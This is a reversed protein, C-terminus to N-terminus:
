RFFSSAWVAMVLFLLFIFFWSSLKFFKKAIKEKKTIALVTLYFFRGGDFIGVPLMNILAVSISILVIWWLLNYVFVSVEDFKSEYYVNKDKILAFVSAIKGSIKSTDYSMFMIGIVPKGQGLSDEGLTISYNEFGESTKTRINVVDGVNKSNIEASLDDISKVDEGDVSVIIRSLNANIAPNNEYVYVFEENAFNKIGFYSKNATHVDRIHGEEVLGAVDDYSPNDLSVNGVSTIGAIPIASYTYDDFVVGTPAFAVLFFVTMMAFGAIATLTNAFTGASLISLQPFIKKKQMKKEDLEVFAALFVPLFFPFFGFGTSKVKIKNYASFVGHAFEHTIAIIALIIIWYIFYFSPLGEVLKDVYPVIPMIPPVRVTQVFEPNFLYVGVLRLVFYFASVMLVYGLGVSIYSCIKLTKKYKTGAKEILRIGWPTKYLFLLGEKKLNSRKRYLFISVFLIFLVLLTIDYAIFTM